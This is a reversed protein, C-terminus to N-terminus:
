LPHKPGLFCVLQPIGPIQNPPSFTVVNKCKATKLGQIDTLWLYNVTVHSACPTVVGVPALVSLFACYDCSRVTMVVANISQKAERRAGQETNSM